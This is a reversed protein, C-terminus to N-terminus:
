LKFGKLQQIYVGKLEGNLFTSKVDMPYVKFDEFAVFVLFMWIAEMRAVPAYTEDIDIGEIHTYGKWVLM